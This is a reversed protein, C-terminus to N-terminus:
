TKRVQVRTAAHSDDPFGREGRAAQHRTTYNTKHRHYQEPRTATTAVALTFVMITLMIVLMIMILAILIFKTNDNNFNDNNESDNNYKIM